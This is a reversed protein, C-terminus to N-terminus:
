ARPHAQKYVKKLKEITNHTYVQTASLNAHGLLEKLANLDAGQNLLHTAFTHRLVHPSKKSATTVLGLYRNVITYVLRAYIRRGSDTLFLADNGGFIRRKEAMYEVILMRYKNSFPILREKNRKGKVKITHRQFDIDTEDLAVLESLRMGTFYFTELVARDRIGSFDGSFEITNLLQDMQEQEVYIPLRGSMKPATVRRMPNIEMEGERIMYRFFTKLTTIKRNITRPSDGKEMLSAIWSRVAVSDVSVPDSIEFETLLFLFFQDLDNGYATVTHDSYRKEFKIYALFRDKV